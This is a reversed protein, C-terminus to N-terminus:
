KFSGVIDYRCTLRVQRGIQDAYFRLLDPYARYPRNLLNDGTLSLALPGKQWRVEAFLLGYGAPPPIYENLLSYRFQRVYHSWGVEIGGSPFRYRALATATPAPWLPMPYRNGEYAYSGWLFNARVETQFVRFWDKRWRGSLSVWNAPAQFYRLSLAAGRLSLVPSGLQALVYAPSVYGAAILEVAQSEYAARLSVTPEARLMPDGVEFTAQAQHYGYAFLEAPNPARSVFAAQVRLKEEPSFSFGRTLEVGMPSFVRKSAPVPANAPLGTGRQIRYMLPEWRVGAEWAGWRYLVFTGVQGREYSPIFYAYQRYNRQYQGLVGIVWKESSYSLETYHTTLQLDLSTGTFAYIGQADRERRRNYQRGYVLTLMRTQGLLRSVKVQASEHTVAQAPAEVRYSFASAAL